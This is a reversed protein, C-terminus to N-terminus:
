LGRTPMVLKPASTQDTYVFVTQKYKHYELTLMDHYGAVLYLVHSKVGSEPLGQAVNCFGVSISQAVNRPSASGTDRDSISQAVNHPSASGIQSARLWM